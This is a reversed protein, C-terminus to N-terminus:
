PLPPYLRKRGAHPWGMVSSHFAWSSPGAEPLVSSHPVRAGQLTVVELQVALSYRTAGENTNVLSTLSCGWAAMELSARCCLIQPTFRRSATEWPTGLAGLVHSLLFRHVRVSSLPLQSGAGQRSSGARTARSSCIRGPSNPRARLWDMPPCRDQPRQHPTQTNSLSLMLSFGRSHHGATRLRGELGWVLRPLFILSSISYLQMKCLSYGAMIYLTNNQDLKRLWATFLTTDFYLCSCSIVRCFFKGILILIFFFFDTFRLISVRTLNM